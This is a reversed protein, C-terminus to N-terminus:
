YVPSNNKNIIKNGTVSLDIIELDLDDIPNNEIEFKHVHVYKDVMDYHVNHVSTLGNKNKNKSFLEKYSIKRKTNEVLQIIDKNFNTRDITLNNELCKDNLINDEGGWTWMNPFGGINEFDEGKIVFIGGLTNKFGFLHVVNGKITTPNIINEKKPFTDVDNFVINIDKYNNPYLTKILIFGINKMAGRNFLRTDNQHIFFFKYLPNKMHLRMNKTYEMIHQTRDRYPIIFISVPIDM